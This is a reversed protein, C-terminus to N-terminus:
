EQPEPIMISRIDAAWQVCEAALSMYNDIDDGDTAIRASNELSVADELLAQHLKELRKSLEISETM